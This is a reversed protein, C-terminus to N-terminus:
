RTRARNRWPRLLKAGSEVKNCMARLNCQKGWAAVATSMPSLDLMAETRFQSRPAPSAAIATAPRAPAAGAAWAWDSGILIPMRCLRDPVMAMLSVVSFSTMSISISSCFLFPPTSPRLSSATTTSGALLQGSNASFARSSIVTLLTAATNPQQVETDRLDTSGTNSSVPLM